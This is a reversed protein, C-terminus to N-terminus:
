IGKFDSGKQKSPNAILAQIQTQHTHSINYLLSLDVVAFIRFFLRHKRFMQLYSNQFTCNSIVEPCIFVKLSLPRKMQRRVLRGKYTKIYHISLVVEARAIM